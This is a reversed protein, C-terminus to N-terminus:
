RKGDVISKLDEIVESADWRSLRELHDEVRGSTNFGGKLLRKNQSDIFRTSKGAQKLLSMIYRIQKDTARNRASTQTTM